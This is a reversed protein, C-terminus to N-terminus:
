CLHSRHAGEAWCLWPGVPRLLCPLCPSSQIPGVAGLNQTWKAVGETMCCTKSPKTSGVSQDEKFCFSPTQVGGASLLLQRLLLVHTSPAGPNVTHFSRESQFSSKTM